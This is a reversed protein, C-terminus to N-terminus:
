LLHLLDSAPTIPLFPSFNNECFVKEHFNYNTMKKSDRGVLYHTRRTETSFHSVPKKMIVSKQHRLRCNTMRRVISWILASTSLLLLATPPVDYMRIYQSRAIVDFYRYIVVLSLIYKTFPKKITM